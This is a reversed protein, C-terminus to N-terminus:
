RFCPGIEFIRVPRDWLRLLDKLIFYLHPALMPRLCRTKDLWFVQSGLAHSEDVSMRALLGRSMIIPTTVQVFGQATMAQVLRSEMECIGPRLKRTRLDELKARHNRVRQKELEQFVQDREQPTDFFREIDRIDAGLEKLRKSQIETWTHRNM